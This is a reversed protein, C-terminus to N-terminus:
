LMGLIRVPESCLPRFWLLDLGNFFECDLNGNLKRGTEGSGVMFEGSANKTLWLLRQKM